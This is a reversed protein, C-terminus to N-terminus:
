LPLLSRAGGPPFFAVLRCEDWPPECRRVESMRAGPPEVLLIVTGDSAFRAASVSRPEEIDLPVPEVTRTDYLRVRSTAAGGGERTLAYYRFRDLEGPMRRDAAPDIVGDSLDVSVFQDGLTLYALGEEVYAIRSGEESLERELVREDAALDYLVLEPVAPDVWVVQDAEDFVAFTAELGLTAIRVREGERSVTMLNGRVDLYVAGDGWQAFERVDRIDFKTQPLYFTGDAYWAMPSPNPYAISEVSAFREPGKEAIPEERSAVLAAIGGAILVLALVAGISTTRRRRRRDASAAILSDVPPPDVPVQELVLLLEPVAGYEPRRVQAGTLDRVQDPALGVVRDLVLARRDAVEMLDLQAEVEPWGAEALDAAESEPVPETWWADRRRDWREFLERVVHVDIDAWEDRADWEDHVRSLTDATADHAPGPPVGIGILCRVLQAWRASVYSTFDLDDTV